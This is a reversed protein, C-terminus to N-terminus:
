WEGGIIAEDVYAKIESKDAETWYDVGREPTHGDEGKLKALQEPTFDEYTFPDGKDGKIAFLSFDIDNYDLSDIEITEDPMTIDVEIDNNMTMVQLM